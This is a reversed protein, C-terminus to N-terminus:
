FSEGLNVVSNLKFALYQIESGATFHLWAELQFALPGVPASHSDECILRLLIAKLVTV